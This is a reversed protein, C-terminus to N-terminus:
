VLEAASAKKTRKAKPKPTAVECIKELGHAIALSRDTKCKARVRDPWISYALHAWDYDGGALEEWCAKEAVQAPPLTELAPQRHHARRREPEAEVLNASRAEIRPEIV